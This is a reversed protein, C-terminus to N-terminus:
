LSSRSKLEVKLFVKTRGEKPCNPYIKVEKVKVIDNKYFSKGSYELTDAKKDTNRTNANSPPLKPCESNDLIEKNAEDEYIRMNISTWLLSGNIEKQINELNTNKSLKDGLLYPCLQDDEAQECNWKEGDFSGISVWGEHHNFLTKQIDQKERESPIITFGQLLSMTIAFGLSVLGMGTPRNEKEAWTDRQTVTIISILLNVVITAILLAIM